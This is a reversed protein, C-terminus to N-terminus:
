HWTSFYKLRELLSLPEQTQTTRVTVKKVEPDNPPIAPIGDAFNWKESSNWLFDPSHWWLSSDTCEQAGAGRSSVDAPNAKKRVYHWQEPTTHERIEQVLNSVFIHFRRADNNIYGLVTQSDTWFFKKM